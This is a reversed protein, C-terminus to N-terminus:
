LGKLPQDKPKNRTPDDGSLLFSAVSNLHAELELLNRASMNKGCEDWAAYVVRFLNSFSPPPLYCCFSQFSLFKEGKM